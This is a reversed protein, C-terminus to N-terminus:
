YDYGFDDEGYYGYDEDTGYGASALTDADAEVDNRFQDEREPVDKMYEDNNDWVLDDRSSYIQIAREPHNSSLHYAEDMMDDFDDRTHTNTQSVLHNGLWISYHDEKMNM